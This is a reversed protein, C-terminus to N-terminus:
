EKVNSNNFSIPKAVKLFQSSIFDVDKLSLNAHNPLYIGYRDVFKANKLNLNYKNIKKIFPQQGM